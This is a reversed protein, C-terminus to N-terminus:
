PPKHNYPTRCYFLKDINHTFEKTASNGLTFYSSSNKIGWPTHRIGMINVIQPLIAYNKKM